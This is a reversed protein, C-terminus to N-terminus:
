KGGEKKATEKPADKTAKGAEIWEEAQKPHLEVSDGVKRQGKKVSFAKDTLYVTQRDNLSINELIKEEKQNAM